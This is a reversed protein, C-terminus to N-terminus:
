REAEFLYQSVLEFVPGPVFLEAATASRQDVAAQRVFYALVVIHGVALNRELIGQLALAPCGYEIRLDRAAGDPRKQSRVSDGSVSCM